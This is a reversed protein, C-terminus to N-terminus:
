IVFRLQLSHAGLWLNKANKKGHGSYRHHEDDYSIFAILENDYIIQAGLFTTYYEVMAKFNNTRLVVHALKTPSKVTTSPADFDVAM